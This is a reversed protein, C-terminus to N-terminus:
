DGVFFLVGHAYDGDADVDDDEDESTIDERWLSGCFEILLHKKNNQYVDLMPM